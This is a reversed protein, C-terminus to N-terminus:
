VNLHADCARVESRCRMSSWQNWSHTKSPRRPMALNKSCRSHWVKGRSAKDEEEVWSLVRGCVEVWWRVVRASGKAGDGLEVEFCGVVCRALGCVVVKDEVSATHVFRKEADVEVVAQEVRETGGGAQGECQGEADVDRVQYLEGERTCVGVVPRM